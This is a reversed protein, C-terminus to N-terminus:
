RRGRHALHVDRVDLEFCGLYTVHPACEAYRATVTLPTDRVLIKWSVDRLLLSRLQKMGSLCDLFSQFHIDFQVAEMHLSALGTCCVLVVDSDMASHALSLHCVRSFFPLLNYMPHILNSDVPPYQTFFLDEVLDRLHPCVQITQALRRLKVTNAIASASATLHELYITRYLCLRSRPLWAQCTRACRALTRPVVGSEAEQDSSNKVNDIITEYIEIPFASSSPRLDAAPAGTCM